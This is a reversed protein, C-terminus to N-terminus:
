FRNTYLDCHIGLGFSSNAVKCSTAGNISQNASPVVVFVGRAPKEQFYINVASWIYLSPNSENIVTASQGSSATKMVGKYFKGKGDFKKASEALFAQGYLEVSRTCGIGSFWRATVSKKNSAQTKKTTFNVSCQVASIPINAIHADSAAHGSVASGGLVTAKGNAFSVAILPATSSSSGVGKTPQKHAAKSSSGISKLQKSSPGGSAAALGTSGALAAVGFATFAAVRRRSWGSM